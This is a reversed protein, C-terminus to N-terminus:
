NNQRFIDRNVDIKRPERRFRSTIRRIIRPDEYMLGTMAAALQNYEIIVENKPAIDSAPISQSLAELMKIDHPLIAMVPCGAADEIDNVSLEFKKNYVRNLIIGAIPTRKEKAIKVAHLTCSLTPYDPTTVAFLKDSAMMTALMEQNLNPSSDIIIYDYSDEVQKLINKLDNVRIKSSGRAKGPMIHFGHGSDFIADAPKKKRKIVDQISVAPDVIGLHLGLNPASVNGDVVLVKKEFQNALAAALNCTVTTKGVGGKISIVGIKEAM